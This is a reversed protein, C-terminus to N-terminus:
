RPGDGSQPAPFVLTVRTGHGPISQVRADGGHARMASRVIALGLGTGRREADTTFFRDFIRPLDGPEIGPGADSVVVRAEGAEVEVDVEVARGAPSFRVANEVVNQLAAEADAARLFVPATPHARVEVPVDPTACRAGITRALVELDVPVRALSAAEIRGLELLRSVLRDLREVDLRINRLFTRRAEPDDAAGEELLEAAGRISTLPSKFEHAVDAALDRAYGLREDLRATMTAFSEALERIEGQGELVVSVDREGGAIRRATTSLRRLPRSISLALLLTIAVTGVLTLGLVRFLGARITHLDALVPATSRVVYVAGEVRGAVRLPLALFLLVAPARARVRTSTARGEGRLAARVEHRDAVEPWRAGLELDGTTGARSAAYLWSRVDAARPEPGEPAGRDHSDVLTAGHRDLVRIRARTRAAIRRLSAAHDPDDLPRGRRADLRLMETVIAAQHDMDRELGDLLRREYLRAFEIGVLPVLVVLVNVLLLRVGLRSALQVGARAASRVLRAALGREGM